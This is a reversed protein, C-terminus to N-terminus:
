CYFEMKKMLERTDFGRSVIVAHGNPTKHVEIELPVSAKDYEKIDNIFEELKDETDDFDFLWKREAACEKKNAIGAIKAEASVLDFNDNFILEQILKKKAMERDRANIKMYFRCFEGERGQKSWNDFDLYSCDGFRKCKLNAIDYNFKSLNVIDCKKIPQKYRKRQYFERARKKYELEPTETSDETSINSIVIKEESGKSHSRKPYLLRDFSESNLATMTRLNKFQELDLLWFKRETITSKNPFQKQSFIDRVVDKLNNPTDLRFFLNIYGGILYDSESLRMKLDYNIQNYTKNLRAINSSLGDFQNSGTYEKFGNDTYHAASFWNDSGGKFSLDSQFIRAFLSIYDPNTWSPLGNLKGDEYLSQLVGTQYDYLNKDTKRFVLELCFEASGDSFSNRSLLLLM